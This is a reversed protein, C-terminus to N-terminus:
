RVVVITYFLWLNNIFFNNRLSKYLHPPDFMFVIREGDIKITPNKRSVGAEKAMKVNTTCQDFVALIPKLGTSKIKKVAEELM